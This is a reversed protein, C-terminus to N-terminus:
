LAGSDRVTILTLEVGPDGVRVVDGSRLISRGAVREGNVYSGYRSHDVLMVQGAECVVSCHLRSVGSLDGALALSPAGAPARGIELPTVSLALARGAHLLHTPPAAVAGAAVRSRQVAEHVLPIAQEIRRLLRVSGDDGPATSQVAGAALASSLGLAAFGDPVACLECGSFGALLTDIGPLRTLVAPLVLTVATGAPRLSHLLTAAGRMFPQVPVALQDRTLEVALEAGPGQTRLTVRDRLAAEILVGPLADYLRQETAADHLPDFRTRRVLAEAALALWSERLELWGGLRLSVRQAARAFGRETCTVRTAAVHHLGLEMVLADNRLDLAAAGVVAADRLTSVRAGTRALLSLVTGLSPASYLAPALVEVRSGADIAARAFRTQLEAQATRLMTGSVADRDREDALSIWHRTSTETPALRESGSLPEGAVGLAGIAGGRARAARVVSASVERLEGACAVAFARDSIDIVVSMRADQRESISRFASTITPRNGCTRSM